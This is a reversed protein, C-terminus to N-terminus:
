SVFGLKMGCDNDADIQHLIFDDRLGAKVEGNVIITITHNGLELGKTPITLKHYEPIDPVIIADDIQGIPAPLPDGPQWDLYVYHVKGGFVEVENTLLMMFIAEKDKPVFTINIPIHLMLGVFQSNYFVGPTDGLNLAGYWVPYFLFDDPRKMTSLTIQNPHNAAFFLRHEKNPVRANPNLTNPKTLPM